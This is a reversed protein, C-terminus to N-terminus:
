SNKKRRESTFIFSPPRFFPSEGGGKGSKPYKIIAVQINYFLKIVEDMANMALIIVCSKKLQSSNQTASTLERKVM